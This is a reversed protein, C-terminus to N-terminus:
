DLTRGFAGLAVGLEDLDAAHDVVAGVDQSEDALDVEDDVTGVRHIDAEIRHGSRRVGVLVHRLERGPASSGTPPRCTPAGQMGQGRFGPTRSIENRAGRRTIAAIVINPTASSTKM